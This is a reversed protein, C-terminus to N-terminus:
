SWSVLVVARDKGGRTKKHGYSKGDVPLRCCLYIQNLADYLLVNEVDICM